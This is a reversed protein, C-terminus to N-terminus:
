TLIEYLNQDEMWAFLNTQVIKNIKLCLIRPPLNRKVRNNKRNKVEMRSGNFKVVETAEKM